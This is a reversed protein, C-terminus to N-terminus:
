GIRVYDPDARVKEAWEKEWKAQAEDWTKRARQFAEPSVVDLLLRIAEDFTMDKKREKLRKHTEATLQITTTKAVFSYHLSYYKLDQGSVTSEFPRAAVVM